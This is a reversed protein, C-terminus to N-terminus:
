RVRYIGWGDPRENVVEVGQGQARAWNAAPHLGTWQDKLELPKVVVLAGKEFRTIPGYWLETIRQQPCLNTFAAGMGHTYIHTAGSVIVETALEREVRANRIFPIMARVFLAAQLVLLITFWLWIKRTGVTVRVWLRAFAPYLLFAAFPQALLLVRDNQFPMCGVFLLYIILMAAAARQLAGEIDVKRVFLLLLAGLPLFGPHVFVSFLRLVNPLPYRLVGDDSHLERRFLNLPTWDALPTGEVADLWTPMNLLVPLILLALLMGCASLFIRSWRKPVVRYMSMLVLGGLMPASALRVQVAAIAAVSCLVWWHVKRDAVARGWAWWSLMVLAMAPLDSMCVLAYRLLFPSLGVALLVYVKAMPAQRDGSELARRFVLGIALFALVPLLRMAFQVNGLVAGM